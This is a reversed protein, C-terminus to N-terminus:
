TMGPAGRILKLNKPNKNSNKTGQDFNLNSKSIWDINPNLGSGVPGSWVQVVRVAGPDSDLRVKPDSKVLERTSRGIEM